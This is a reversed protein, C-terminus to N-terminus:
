RRQEGRRLAIKFTLNQINFEPLFDKKMLEFNLM